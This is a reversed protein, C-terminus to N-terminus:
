SAEIAGAGFGRAKGFTKMRGIKEVHSGRFRQLKAVKMIPKATEKSRGSGTRNKPIALTKKPGKPVPTTRPFIAFLGQNQM